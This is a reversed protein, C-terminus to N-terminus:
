LSEDSSLICALDFRPSIKRVVSKIDANGEIM